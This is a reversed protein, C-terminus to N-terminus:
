VPRTRKGTQGYTYAGHMFVCCEPARADVRPRPQSKSRFFLQLLITTLFPAACRRSFACCNTIVIFLKTRLSHLSPLIAPGWSSVLRQGGLAELHCPTITHTHTHTHSQKKNTIVPGDPHMAHSRPLRELRSVRVGRLRNSAPRRPPIEDQFLTGISSFSGGLATKLQQMPEESFTEWNLIRVTKTKGFSAFNSNRKRM